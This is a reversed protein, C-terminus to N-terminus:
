AEDDITVINHSVRLWEGENLRAAADQVQHVDEADLESRNLDYAECYDDADFVSGAEVYFHFGSFDPNTTTDWDLTINFINHTM